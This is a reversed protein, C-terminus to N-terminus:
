SFFINWDRAELRLYLRGAAPTMNGPSPPTPPVLTLRCPHHKWPAPSDSTCADLPPPSTELSRPLRLYLRGAAPTINRPHPPTPPVLTWRRPLHKWPAPSDSTCADLPTPSTELTCHTRLYLRGAAPSPNGPHPPPPHHSSSYSSSSSSGTFFLVKVLPHPFIHPAGLTQFELFEPSWLM